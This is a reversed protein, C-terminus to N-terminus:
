AAKSVGRGQQPLTLVQAVQSQKVGTAAPAFHITVDLRFTTRSALEDHHYPFSIRIFIFCSGATSLFLWCKFLLNM